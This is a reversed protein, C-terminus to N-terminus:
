ILGKAFIDKQPVFAFGNYNIVNNFKVKCVALSHDCGAFVDVNEGTINSAFPFILTIDDGSQSLILRFDTTGLQVFGAVAWDAGNASLGPITYVSGTIASVAATFKFDNQVVKCQADYLFNNCLGQYGVRPILRSLAATIPAVALKAQTGDNSYAVSAVFGKFLVIAQQDPDQRHLRRVTFSARQGPLINVYLQPFPDSGPLELVFLESRLEATLKVSSRQLAAPSYTDGAFVYDDESSCYRYTTLGVRIEYLEVPEGGELSTEFAAFTM